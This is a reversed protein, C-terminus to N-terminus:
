ILHKDECWESKLINSLLGSRCRVLFNTGLYCCCDALIITKSNFLAWLRQKDRHVGLHKKSKQIWHPLRKLGYAKMLVESRMLDSARLGESSLRHALVNVENFEFLYLVDQLVDLYVANTPMTWDLSLLILLDSVKQNMVQQLKNVINMMGDVREEKSKRKKRIMKKSGERMKCKRKNGREM